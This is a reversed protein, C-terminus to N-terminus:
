ILPWSINPDTLDLRSLDILALELTKLREADEDTLINYKELVQLKVIENLVENTFRKKKSTNISVTEEESPVRPHIGQINDWSWNTFMDRDFFNEPLDNVLVEAITSETNPLGIETVDYAYSTIMGDSDVLVKLTDQKFESIHETWLRGDKDSFIPYSDYKIEFNNKLGNFNINENSSLHLGYVVKM